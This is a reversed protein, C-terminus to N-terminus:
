RLVRPDFSFYVTLVDDRYGSPLAGFARSAGAAEVAGRADLDFGYNGSSSRVVLDSVSGDRHILFRVEARLTSQAARPRFNLAIQRVINQLYGPYPFDIGDTRVTVVDNGAGGEAGGGARPAAAGRTTAKAPTRELSPTASKSKARTTPKLIPAVKEEPVKNAGPPAAATAPTPSQPRDAADIVGARRVGRPAAVLDVKYSPAMPPPAAPRVVVFLAALAVHVGVSWTM